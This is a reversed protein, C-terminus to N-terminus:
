SACGAPQTVSAPCGPQGVPFPVTMGADYSLVMLADTSNVGGDGNVDGCNMPCFQPTAVAVDASLIILADTSNALGDGDVDGLTGSGACDAVTVTAIASQAPNGALDQAKIQYSLTGTQSFPGVTAAYTNDSELTMFVWTWSGQPAGYSLRVFELGDVDSVDARITVTTPSACGQPYIPDASERINSIDPPAGDASATQATLVLCLLVVGVRALTSWSLRGSM